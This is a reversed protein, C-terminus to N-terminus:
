QLETPRRNPDWDICHWAHESPFWVTFTQPLREMPQWSGRLVFQRHKGCCLLASWYCDLFLVSRVEHPM